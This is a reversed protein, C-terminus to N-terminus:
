SYEIACFALNAGTSYALASPNSSGVVVVGKTYKEPRKPGISVSENAAAYIVEKLVGGNSINAVGQSDWIQIYQATSGNLVRVEELKRNTTGFGELYTAPAQLRKTVSSGGEGGFESTTLTVEASGEGNSVSFIVRTFARINTALIEYSEGSTLVVPFDAVIDWDQNDYSSQVYAQVELDAGGALAAGSLTLDAGASTTLPVNGDSGAEDATITVVAGEASASFGGLGDIAAALSTATAENSTAATFDVGETLTNAGVVVTDSGLGTYDVVTITGSAFADGVATLSEIKALVASNGEASHDLTDSYFYDEGGDMDTITLGTSNTSISADGNSGANDATINVIAGDAVASFGSIGDIASALSTATASNSTSATFESGQTLDTGNFSVVGEGLGGSLDNLDVAGDLQEDWTGSVEVNWESGIAAATITIVAGVASAAYDTLGDIAAALNTATTAEDTEVTFDVGGTLTEEGITLVFPDKGGLCHAENITIGSDANSSIGVENGDRGPTDVTVNVTVGVAASSIGSIGDIASALNTATVSNSTEATFDVGETLVNGDITVTKGALSAYDSIILQGTAQAQLLKQYDLIEIDAEAEVGVLQTYDTVEISGSSIRLTNDLTISSQSDKM